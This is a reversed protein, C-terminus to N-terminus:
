KKRSQNRAPLVDRELSFTSTQLWFAASLVVTHAKGQSIAALGRACCPNENGHLPHTGWSLGSLPHISPQLWAQTVLESLPLSFVLMSRELNRLAARHFLLKCIDRLPQPVM